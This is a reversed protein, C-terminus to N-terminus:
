GAAGGVGSVGGAAVGSGVGATAVVGGAGDGWLSIMSWPVCIATRRISGMSVEFFWVPSAKWAM